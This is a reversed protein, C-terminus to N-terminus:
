IVWEWILTHSLVHWSHASLIMGSFAVFYLGYIVRVKKKGMQYLFSAHSRCRNVTAPMEGPSRHSPSTRAVRLEGALRSRQEGTAVGQCADGSHGKALPAPTKAAVATASKGPPAAAPAAPSRPRVATQAPTGAAKMFPRAAALPYAPHRRPHRRCLPVRSRAAWRRLCSRGCIHHCTTMWRWRADLTSGSM